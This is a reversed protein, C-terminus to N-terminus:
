AYHSLCDIFRQRYTGLGVDTIAEQGARKMLQMAKVAAMYPDKEQAAFAAILAGATCGMATVQTMLPSGGTLWQERQGDTIRDVEGTIVRVCPYDVQPLVAMEQANGKIICPHCANILYQAAQMRYQTAQIGVPDLVVPKGLRQMAQGAIRASEILHDDLTGINILLADALQAIEDMESQAASMLPRAGIALLANATLDM